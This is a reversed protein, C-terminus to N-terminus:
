LKEGFSRSHEDMSFCSKWEKRGTDKTKTKPIEKLKNNIKQIEMKM